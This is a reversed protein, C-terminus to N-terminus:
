SRTLTEFRHPEAILRLMDAESSGNADVLSQCLNVLALPPRQGGLYCHTAAGPANLLENRLAPSLAGAEPLLTFGVVNHLAKLLKPGIVQPAIHSGDIRNIISRAAFRLFPLVPSASTFCMFANHPGLYRRWTGDPKQQVWCEEGFCADALLNPTWTPDLCLTDADVWIVCDPADNSSLCNHMLDLRGIDAQIPNRGQLKQRTTAELTDFLEDGVFRYHWGQKLAWHQVTEMCADIWLPRHPGASQFLVVDSM